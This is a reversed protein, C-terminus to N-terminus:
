QACSRELKVLLRSALSRLERVDESNAVGNGLTAIQRRVDTESLVGYVGDTISLNEHTLNQSVARLASIGKAVEAFGAIRDAVQATM